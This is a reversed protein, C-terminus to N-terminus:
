AKQQLHVIHSLFQLCVVHLKLAQYLRYAKPRFSTKARAADADFNIDKTAHKCLLLAQVSSQICLVCQESHVICVAKFACHVM